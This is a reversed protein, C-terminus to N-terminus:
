KKFRNRRFNRELPDRIEEQKEKRGKKPTRKPGKNGKRELVQLENFYMISKKAAGWLLGGTVRSLRGEKGKGRRVM